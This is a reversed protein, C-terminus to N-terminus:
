FRAIKTKEFGYIISLQFKWLTHLIPLPYTIKCLIFDRLREGGLFSRNWNKLRRPMWKLMLHICKPVIDSSIMPLTLLLLIQISIRASFRKLMMQCQCSLLVTPSGTASDWNKWLLSLENCRLLKISPISIKLLYTSLHTSEYPSMTKEWLQLFSMWLHFFGFICILMGNQVQEILFASIKTTCTFRPVSNFSYTKCFLTPFIVKCLQFFTFKHYKWFWVQQRLKQLYQSFVFLFDHQHWKEVRVIIKGVRALSPNKLVFWDKTILGNLCAVEFKWSKHLM